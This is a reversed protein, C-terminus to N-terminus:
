ASSPWRYKSTGLVPYTVRAKSAVAGTHLVYLLISVTRCRARSAQCHTAVDVDSKREKLIRDMCRTLTPACTCRLCESVENETVQLVRGCNSKVSVFGPMILARTVSGMETSGATLVAVLKSLQVVSREALRSAAKWAYVANYRAPKILAL